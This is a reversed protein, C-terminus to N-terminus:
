YKYITTQCYRVIVAVDSFALGEHLMLCMEESNHVVFHVSLWLTWMEPNITLAFTYM